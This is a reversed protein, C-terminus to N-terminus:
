VILNCLKLINQLDTSMKEIIHKNNEINTLIIDNIYDFSINDLISTEIIQVESM